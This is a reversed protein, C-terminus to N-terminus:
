GCHFVSPHGSAGDHSTKGTQSKSWRTGALVSMNSQRAPKEGLAVLDAGLDGSPIKTDPNLGKIGKRVRKIAQLMKVSFFGDVSGHRRM